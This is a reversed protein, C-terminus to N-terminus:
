QVVAAADVGCRPMAPLPSFPRPPPMRTVSRLSRISHTPSGISAGALPPRTPPPSASAPQRYSEPYSSVLFCPPLPLRCPRPAYALQAYEVKACEPQAGDLSTCRGHGQRQLHTFLPESSSGLLLCSSSLLTSSSGSWFLCPRRVFDVYWTGVVYMVCVCPFVWEM